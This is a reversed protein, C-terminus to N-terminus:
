RSSDDGTPRSRGDMFHKVDLQVSAVERLAATDWVFLTRGASYVLRQGCPGFALAFAGTSLGRQADSVLVSLPDATLLYFRKCGVVAVLKGDPSVAVRNIAGSELEDTQYVSSGELNYRRILDQHGGDAVFVARRDPALGFARCWSGCKRIETGTQAELISVSGNKCLVSGGSVFALSLGFSQTGPLTWRREGTASDILRCALYSGALALTRGCPSFALADIMRSYAKWVLM